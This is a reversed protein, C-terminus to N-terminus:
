DILRASLLAKVYLLMGYMRCGVEEVEEVVAVVGDDDELGFPLVM